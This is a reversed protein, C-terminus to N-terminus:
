KIYTQSTQKVMDLLDAELEPQLLWNAIKPDEIHCKIEKVTPMAKLLIKLQAKADFVQLSLNSKQFLEEFFKCKEDFSFDEATAHQLNFYYSSLQDSTDAELYLAIGDIYFCGDFICNFQTLEESASDASLLNAGIKPKNLKLNHNCAVSFGIETCKNLELKFQELFLSSDFVRIIHLKSLNESKTEIKNSNLLHSSNADCSSSSLSFEISDVDVQPATTEKNRKRSSQTRSQTKKFSKTIEIPTQQIVDDDTLSANSKRATEKKEGNTQLNMQIRPSKRSTSSKDPSKRKRTSPTSDTGFIDESVIPSRNKPPKFNTQVSSTVSQSHISEVDNRTWHVSQVGLEAELYRFFFFCPLEMLVCFLM